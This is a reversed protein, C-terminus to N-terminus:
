DAPIEAAPSESAAALMVARTSVARINFKKHIM